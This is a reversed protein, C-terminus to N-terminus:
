SKTATLEIDGNDLLVRKVNYGNAKLKRETVRRSYDQFLKNQLNSNFDMADFHLAYSGNEQREFGMENYGPCRAKHFAEQTVIIHAKHKARSDMGSLQRPKELVIVGSTGFMEQLATVLDTENKVLADVKMEAFHSM